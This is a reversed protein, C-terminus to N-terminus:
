SGQNKEAADIHGPLPLELNVDSFVKLFVSLKISKGISKDNFM